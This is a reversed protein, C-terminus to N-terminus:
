ASDKAFTYSNFILKHGSLSLKLSLLNKVSPDTKSFIEMFINIFSFQNFFGM